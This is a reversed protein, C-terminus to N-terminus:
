VSRDPDVAVNQECWYKFEVHRSRESPGLNGGWAPWLPPAPTPRVALKRM